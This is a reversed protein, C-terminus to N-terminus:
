HTTKNKFCLVAYSSRMLSQLESTHEESSVGIAPAGEGVEHQEVGDAGAPAAGGVRLLGLVEPARLRVRFSQGFGDREIDGVVAAGGRGLDQQPLAVATEAGGLQRLDQLLLLADDDGADHNNRGEEVACQM